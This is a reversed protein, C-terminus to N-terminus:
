VSTEQIWEEPRPCGTRSSSPRVVGFSKLTGIIVYESEKREDAANLEGFRFESM